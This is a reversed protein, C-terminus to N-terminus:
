ARPETGKGIAYIPCGALAEQCQAEEEPTEPQKFVHAHGDETMRFNHPAVSVCFESAICSEDVFYPGPVNEPWKLARDPM